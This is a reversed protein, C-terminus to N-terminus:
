THMKTGFNQKYWDAANVDIEEVCLNKLKLLRSDGCAKYVKDGFYILGDFDYQASEIILDEDEVLESNWIIIKKNDYYFFAGPYPKTQARIFREIYDANWNWNINGDEPSRQPMVRRKANDQKILLIEGSILKPLSEKILEVGRDEIRAYLESITDDNFIPESKQGLIPGSDVGSDMQFMTIGTEREGNIMAWVLPAGGSYDPLLSAHLGYAPAIERWLKPIMHYWGVVIFIDPKWGKVIKLLAKDQMSDQLVVNLIKNKESFEAINAHLVNKVTDDSYSIRFKEKATIVGVIECCDMDIISKLCRLGFKSAGIFVVRIM